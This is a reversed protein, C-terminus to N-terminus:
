LRALNTWDTILADIRHSVCVLFDIWTAVPDVIRTFRFPNLATGVLAKSRRASKASSADYACFILSSISRRWQVIWLQIGKSHLASIATCSEFCRRRSSIYVFARVQVTNLNSWHNSNFATFFNSRGYFRNYFSISCLSSCFCWYFSSSFASLFLSLFLRGILWLGLGNVPFHLCVLLHYNCLVCGYGIQVM